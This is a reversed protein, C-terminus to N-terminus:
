TLFSHVARGPEPIDIEIGLAEIASDNALMTDACRRALELKDM